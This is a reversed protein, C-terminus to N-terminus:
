QATSLLLSTEGTVVADVYAHFSPLISELVEQDERSEPDIGTTVRRILDRFATENLYHEAM